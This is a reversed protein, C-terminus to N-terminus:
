SSRVRPATVIKRVEASHSASVMRRVDSPTFGFFARFRATFHSHSAFGSEIAISTLDVGDLLPELTGALRERLVYTGITMGTVSRFTRCFHFPSMHAIRALTAVDWGDSPEASIAEKVRDVARRHHSERSHHAHDVLILTELWMALVDLSAAEADLRDISGSNAGRWLWNRMLMAHPPLPGHSPPWGQKRHADLADPVLDDDFRLILARDGVGGPFSLRYPTHSAVFVGHSPTGIVHRRPGDHKAFLGAVPLVVINYDREEVEGCADTTPRMEFAGVVITDSQFFTKRRVQMASGM